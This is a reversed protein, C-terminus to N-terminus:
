EIFIIKYKHEFKLKFEAVIEEKNILIQEQNQVPRAHPSAGM